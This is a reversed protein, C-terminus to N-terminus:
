WVAPFYVRNSLVIRQETYQPVVKIVLFGIVITGLIVYLLIKAAKNGPEIALLLDRKLSPRKPM